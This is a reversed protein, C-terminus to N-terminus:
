KERSIYMEKRYGKKTYRFRNYKEIYLIFLLKMNMLAYQM